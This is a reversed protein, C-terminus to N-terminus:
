CIFKILLFMEKSIISKSCGKREKYSKDWEIYAKHYGLHKYLNTFSPFVASLVTKCFKCTFQVKFITNNTMINTNLLYFEFYSVTKLSEQMTLIRLSSFFHLIVSYKRIKNNILFLKKEFKQTRGMKLVEDLSAEIYLSPDHENIMTEHSNAQTSQTQASQTQALQTQALHTQALQTQALQTQASNDQNLDDQDTEIDEVDDCHSSRARRSSGHLVETSSNSSPIRKKRNNAVASKILDISKTIQFLFRIPLKM